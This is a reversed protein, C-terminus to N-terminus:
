NENVTDKVKNNIKDLLEKTRKYMDFKSSLLFNVYSEITNMDDRTIDERLIKTDFMLDVIQKADNSFYKEDM